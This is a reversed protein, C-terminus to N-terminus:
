NNIYTKLIDEAIQKRTSRMTMAQKEIYKHAQEESLHLSQILLCKARDVSRIEEIKKQLQLNEKKLGIIRKRSAIVLKLAQYFATRNIPKSVVFVGYEEVKYAISDALDNKVMMMVGAMTSETMMMALESGFEDTLPTNIIVLDCEYQSLLRRTESGSSVTTIKTDPRNQLLDLLLETGKPTSSVILLNEM